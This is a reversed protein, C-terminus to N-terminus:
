AIYLYPGDGCVNVTNKKVESTIAHRSAIVLWCFKGPPGYVTFQGNVVETAAYAGIAEGSYIPTINVTFERALNRVYSPLNVTVASTNHAIVDKGRYYVGAEPGELTAHVLWSDAVTPHDIIFTKSPTFKGEVVTTGTFGLAVAELTM